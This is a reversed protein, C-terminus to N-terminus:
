TKAFALGGVGDEALDVVHREALLVRRILEGMRPEDEVVLVRMSAISTTNAGRTM